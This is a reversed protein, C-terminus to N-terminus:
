VIPEIDDALENEEVPASSLLPRGGWKESMVSDNTDRLDVKNEEESTPSLIYTYVGAMVGKYLCWWM